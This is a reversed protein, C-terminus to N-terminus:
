YLHENVVLLNRPIGNVGIHASIPHIIVAMVLSCWVPGDYRCAPELSGTNHQSDRVCFIGLFLLSM